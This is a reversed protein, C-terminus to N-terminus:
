VMKLRLEFLKKQKGTLKTFDVEVNDKADDSNGVDLHEGHEREDHLDEALSLDVARRVEPFFLNM